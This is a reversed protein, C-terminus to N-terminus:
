LAGGPDGGRLRGIVKDIAALEGAIKERETQLAMIALYSATSAGPDSVPFRPPPPSKRDAKEVIRGRRQSVPPPATDAKGDGRLKQLPLGLRKAAMAVNSATKGDEEGVAEFLEPRSPPRGEKRQFSAHREAVVDRLNLNLGMAAEGARARARNSNASRQAGSEIRNTRELARRAEFPDATQRSVSDRLYMRWVNSCIEDHHEDGAFFSVAEIRPEDYDEDELQPEAPGLETISSAASM